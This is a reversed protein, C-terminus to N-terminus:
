PARMRRALLEFLGTMLLAAVLLFPGLVELGYNAALVGIASPLVAGGLSAAAVEFGVGNAAHRQGMFGPTASILLPFQPALAMGMLAIGGFALWPSANLWILLAALVAGIMSGRLLATPSIRSVVLGFLIRGVTLSAWYLSVWAGALTPEIHRAETLLSYVWNGVGVETGTYVFFLVIGLWAVPLRLTAMLPAGREPAPADATPAPDAWMQRTLAFALALALQAAGVIAFGVRWNLQAALVATMIAPGLTAGIGFCAHLWNMSRPSFHAAAYANLGGDITGGSLGTAAGLAVLVLWTPAAGSALLSLAALGCGLALMVGGGLQALLRGSVASALMYGITNGILLVGLADLPLGFTGRISPWAVGMLSNALGLAVFGAYALVVILLGPQRAAPVPITSETM